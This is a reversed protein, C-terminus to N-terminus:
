LSPRPGHTVMLRRGIDTGGETDAEVTSSVAGRSSTSSFYQPYVENRGSCRSAICAMRPLRSETTTIGVPAPLDSHKWAGASTVSPSARTTDGSMESM